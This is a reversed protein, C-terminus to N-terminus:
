VKFGAFKYGGSLLDTGATLYSASRAYDARSRQLQAENELQVGRKEGGQLHRQAGLAIERVTASNVMLPSGDPTVGSAGQMALGSALKASNRRTYDDAEAAAAERESAARQQSVAANYEAARADAEGKSLSGFMKLGTGAALFLSEVGM